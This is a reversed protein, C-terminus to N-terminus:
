KERSLRTVSFIILQSMAVLLLGISERAEEIQVKSQMDGFLGFFEEPFWIYASLVSGFCILLSVKPFIKDRAALELTLATTTYIFIWLWPDPDNWQVFACWLFFVVGIRWFLSNKM